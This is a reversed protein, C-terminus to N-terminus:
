RKAKIAVMVYKKVAIDTATKKISATLTVVVDMDGKQPIQITANGGNIDIINNDSIWEISIDSGYSTPLIIDVSDKNANVIYGLIDSYTIEGTIRINRKATLVDEWDKFMSANGTLKITTNKLNYTVNEIEKQSAKINYLMDEAQKIANSLQITKLPDDSISTKKAMDIVFELDATDKVITMPTLYRDSINGAKDAAVVIFSNNTYDFDLGLTPLSYELGPKTIIVANATKLRVAEDLDAVNNFINSAKLVYAKGEKDSRVKLAEGSYIFNKSEPITIVVPSTNDVIISGISELSAAASNVIYVKYEKISANNEMLPANIVKNIGNGTLSTMTDKEVFPSIGDKEAIWSIGAPAIWATQGAKPASPLTIATGPKVRMSSIYIKDPIYEETVSLGASFESSVKGVVNPSRGSIDSTATGTYNLAVYIDYNGGKLQTLKSDRVLNSKGTSANISSDMWPGESLASISAVSTQNMLDIQTKSPLIYVDQNLISLSGSSTSRSKTWRGLTFDRGDAGLGTNDGDYASTSDIIPVDPIVVTTPKSQAKGVRQVTLYISQGFPNFDLSSILAIKDRSVTAKGLLVKCDNDSYVYIVDNEQLRVGNGLLKDKVQVVDKKGANNFVGIENTDNLMESPLMLYCKITNTYGVVTGTHTYVGDKMQVSKPDKNWAVVLQRMTNDGMIAPVKDPLYKDQLWKLSQNVDSYDIAISLDEILTIKDSTKATGLEEAKLTGDSIVPVRFMKGKTTNFYVFDSLVNIYGVQEDSLKIKDGSGDAKVKYLKGGDDYNSYYIWDGVVNIHYGKNYEITKAKIPIIYGSGDKSIKSIVGSGSSYYIWNADTQICKTWEDSIKAKYVGEQNLLYPKNGDTIDSYYIWDGSVDIYAVEDTSDSFKNGVLSGSQTTIVDSSNTKIRYLKGGDSYNSYFIDNKAITVYAAKDDLVKTRGSGDTKVKYLKGSDTYNSYYVWGNSINIYQAKDDSIKVNYMGDFGMKYLKEKDVPNSYYIYGDDDMAAIGNNNINGTTNGKGDSNEMTLMYKKTNDYGVYIYGRALVLKDSSYFTIREGWASTTFAAINGITKMESSHETKFYVADPVGYVATVNVSILKIDSRSIISIDAAPLIEEYQYKDYKWEYAHRVGNEDVYIINNNQRIYNKGTFDTTNFLSKVNQYGYDQVYYVGYYGKTIIENVIAKHNNLYKASYAINDIVVLGDDAPLGAFVNDVVKFQLKYPKCITYKNKAKIKDTIELVYTSENTYPNVPNVTIKKLTSDLSVKIPIAWNSGKEHVFVNSTNVTSSDLEMNFAVNWVKKSPVNYRISDYVEEAIAYVNINIVFFSLMLVIFVVTLSKIRNTHSM